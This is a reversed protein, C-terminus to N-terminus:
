EGSWAEIVALDSANAEEGVGRASRVVVVADGPAAEELAIAIARRREPEIRAERPSRLGEALEKIITMPNEDRTRDTTLVVTDAWQEAVAAVSARVHSPLPGASGLVVWLKGTILPRLDGLMRALRSRTTAADLYVQAPAPVSVAELRGPVKAVSSLGRVVADLDVGMALAAAAAAVANSVNHHGVLDTRVRRRGFPTKLEFETGVADLRLVRGHVEGGNEVGYSMVEASTEERLVEYAPDDANLVAVGDRPLARLLESQAELVDALSEGGEGFDDTLNTVVGVKFWVGDV